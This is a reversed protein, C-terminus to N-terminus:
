WGVNKTNRLNSWATDGFYARDLEVRKVGTEPTDKMKLYKMLRMDLADESYSAGGERRQDGTIGMLLGAVMDILLQTNPFWPVETSSEPTSIDPMQPNYRVTYPYAGSAPQWVYMNHPTAAVDEYFRSPYSANGPQQIFTDFEEQTCGIMTYPVGNIYYFAGNRHIRLCDSPMANPGCGVAYSFGSSSTNFTGTATKRIVDFDYNQALSQLVTNLFQGAQSTYGPCKAIQVALSVIQQAQLGM